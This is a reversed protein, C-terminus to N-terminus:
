KATRIVKKIKKKPTVTEVSNLIDDLFSYENEPEVKEEIPAEEIPKSQVKKHIKKKQPLDMIEHPKKTGKKEAIGLVERFIDFNVKERVQKLGHKEFFKDTQGKWAREFWDDNEKFPNSRTDDFDVKRPLRKGTEHMWKYFELQSMGLMKKLYVVAEKETDLCKMYEHTPRYNVIVMNGIISLYLREM